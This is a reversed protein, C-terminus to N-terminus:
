KVVVDNVQRLIYEEVYPYQEATMRVTMCSINEKLMIESKKPNRKVKKIYSITLYTSGIGEGNAEWPIDQGSYAESDMANNSAALDVSSKVM